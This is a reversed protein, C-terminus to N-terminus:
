LKCSWCFTNECQKNKFKWKLGWKKIEQIVKVLEKGSETLSYFTKAVAESSDIRKFLIGEKELEKLRLSLVKPTILDLDRKVDSYRKEHSEGKFISLIVSLSWKKGILGATRFVTCDENM